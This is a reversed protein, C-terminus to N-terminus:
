SMRKRPFAQCKTQLSTVDARKLGLRRRPTGGLHESHLLAANCANANIPEIANQLFLAAIVPSQCVSRVM